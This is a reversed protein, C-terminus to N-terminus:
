HTAARHSRIPLSLRTNFLASDDVFPEFSRRYCNGDIRVHPSLSKSFGTEFFNGRSPRLPLFAGGGLTGSLDSSALLINELAPIQFVRDYSARFVLSAHPFQYAGALRPSWAHERAVVRYHDFRLGANLSFYGAQWADQVFASQTRGPSDSGCYF